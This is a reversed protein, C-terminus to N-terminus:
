AHTQARRLPHGETNFVWDDLSVLSSESFILYFYKLTEATWYSDMSDLKGAVDKDTESDKDTTKGEKKEEELEQPTKEGKPNVDRVASNALKTRTLKDIAQWMDWAVDRWHSNGTTRFLIFVSEIAEPRLLYRSDTIRTIGKPLREELITKKVDRSSTQKIIGEHWKSDDWLCPELSPCSRFYLSEPMVGSIMSQYAWACGTTLKAGTAVQSENALLRGGLAFMGGASCATHSATTDLRIEPSGDKKNKVSQASGSFLIDDGNPTMPRYILHKMIAEVSKGYMDGYVGQTNGLLATMKILYEYLSDSTAGLSYDKALDVKGEAPSTGHAWLGPIKTTMQAEAFMDTIRQIADYYKPDNTLLSLRTFELFLSGLESVLLFSDDQKTGQAAAKLNWRAIPLHKPTDFAKYLMDGVDRAKKILRPDASLDYASLLGGLFRINTEFINVEKLNTSEFTIERDIADVAQNFEDVFGMIWLTDLSDVLTAGWGGFTDKQKGTVPTVEDRLWAHHKYTSWASVFADKIANRRSEQSSGGTYFKAQVRPLSATPPEPLPRYSEVPNHYEVKRWLYTKDPEPIPVPALPKPLGHSGSSFNVNLLSSHFVYFTTVIALAVVLWRTRGLAM